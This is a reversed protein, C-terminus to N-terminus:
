KLLLFLLFSPLYEKLNERLHLTAKSLHMEITKVSLGMMEAVEKTKKGEFRRLRFVKQQQEPLRSVAEEIKQGMNEMILSQEEIDESVSEFGINESITEKFYEVINNESKLKRLYNLSNNCVANFLYSKISTNIELRERNEWIRMFTDSVIEEAIDRRGVYRRSYACLSVYYERFLFIYTEEDGIFLGKLIDSPLNQPIM